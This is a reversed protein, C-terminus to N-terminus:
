DEKEKAEKEAKEKKAKEEAEKKLKHHDQLGESINDRVIIDNTMRVIINVLKTWEENNHVKSSLNIFNTLDKHADILVPKTITLPKPKMLKSAIKDAQLQKMELYAYKCSWFWREGMVLEIKRFYEEQELISIITDMIASQTDYGKRYIRDGHRNIEKLLEDAAKVVEENEDYKCAELYLKFGVFRNDRAEDAEKIKKTFPNKKEGNVSYRFQNNAEKLAKYFVSLGMANFDFKGVIDLTNDALLLLKKNDLKFYNFSKLDKM